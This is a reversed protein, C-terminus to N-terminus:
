DIFIIALWYHCLSIFYFSIYYDIYDIIIYYWYWLPLPLLLLTL